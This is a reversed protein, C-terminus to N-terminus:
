LISSIQPQWQSPDGDRGGRARYGSILEAPSQLWRWCTTIWFGAGQRSLFEGGEQLELFGGGGPRALM